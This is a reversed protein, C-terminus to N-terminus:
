RDHYRRNAYLSDQRPSRKFPWWLQATWPDLPDNQIGYREPDQGRPFRATGFLTDWLFLTQGFNEMPIGGAPNVAAHHARHTSPLQILRELLWALAPIRYIPRDWTLNTHILVNHVGVILTSIIVADGLGFYALAASYWLDPMFMFWQWNERFAVTVGMTPTTHHTRHMRWLSNWEHGKRHYWYHLFDSPLFVLLVGLWLPTDALAGRQGAFLGGLLAAALIVILPKILVAFQAISTFDILWDDRRRPSNRYAGSLVELAGVGLFVASVIYTDLHPILSM